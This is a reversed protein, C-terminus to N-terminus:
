GSARRSAPLMGLDANLGEGGAASDAGLSYLAFGQPTDAPHEYRYPTRWPDDPLKEDLYPGRWFEAVEAPASMLAQLGESTSPFRGIDLRYSLLAGRLSKIQTKAVQVQSKDVAGVLRPVVLAGLLGIITIVVLMEMLTWGQM